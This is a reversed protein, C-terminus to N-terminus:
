TMERLSQDDNGCYREIMTHIGYVDKVMNNSTVYSSSTPSGKGKSLEQAYKNNRLEMNSFAREFKLTSEMMMCTSNWRTEVDLYVLSKSKINELKVFGKFKRLRGPSSRVYRM